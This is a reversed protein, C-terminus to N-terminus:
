RLLITAILVSVLAALAPLALALWNRRPTGLEVTGLEDVLLPAPLSAIFLISDPRAPDYLLGAANAGFNLRPNNSKTRITHESGSESTFSVELKHVRKGLVEVGTPTNSLLKGRALLGGGLLRIARLGSRIAFGAIGLGILPMALIGLMWPGFPAQTMGRIRSNTPDDIRYDVAVAQGAQFRSTSYSVGEHAEEALTYFRYRYTYISSGNSSAGSYEAAIITGPASTLEGFRFTLARVDTFHLFISSFLGTAILWFWGFQAFPGGFLLRIRVPWPIRRPPRQSQPNDGLLRSHSLSSSAPM